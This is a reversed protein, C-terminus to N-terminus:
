ELYVEYFFLVNPYAPNDVYGRLNDRFIRIYHMDFVPIVAAAEMIIEQAEIFMAAGANRDVGSIINAEIILDDVLPDSFYSLNFMPDEESHFLNFMWSFPSAYDPWWYMVFIDQADQPNGRSLEWQSTWPMGRIELTIGLTALESMFLELSRRQSENGATYTAVLSFGGDPYGAEALLERARDMNHSYQLINEGHGWLGRPIIGRSQEAEGMMVFDIVDSYPFAYSLARRVLVNDLPPKENNFFLILNQFSASQTVTVGDTERLAAHDEPTTQFIFSAEGSEILQRRSATESIRRIFAVETHNGEWGGWYDEFRGMLVEEGHIFDLVIFPGTGAVNGQSLWDDDNAMVATPSMIFAAYGSAVILDLPAPYSLNIQLRYTELVEMSEVPDWIFAAGLGIDMTRQFSFRVAEADLYTGDHFRVGQRIDFIWTLGDDSYEYSTALIYEFRDENPIYRLLTEYLNHLVIIGNSFEVSPDWDLIPESGTAYFVIRPADGGPAGTGNGCATMLLLLGVILVMLIRRLM